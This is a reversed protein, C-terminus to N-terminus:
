LANATVKSNLNGKGKLMVISENHGLIKNGKYMSSLNSKRRVHQMMCSVSPWKLIFLNDEWHLFEWYLSLISPKTFSQLTEMTLVSSISCDQVLGNLHEWLQSDWYRCLHEDNGSQTNTNWTHKVQITDMFSTEVGWIYITYTYNDRTLM